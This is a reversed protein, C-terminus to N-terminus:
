NTNYYLEPPRKRMESELGDLLSATLHLCELYMEVNTQRPKGEAVRVARDAIRDLQDRRFRLDGLWASYYDRIYADQEVAVITASIDASKAKFTGVWDFDEQDLQRNSSDTLHTQILKSDAHIQQSTVGVLFASSLRKTTEQGRLMFYQVTGATFTSLLLVTTALTRSVNKCRLTVVAISGVIWGVILFSYGVWTTM